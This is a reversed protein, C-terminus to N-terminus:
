NGFTEYSVIDELAKRNKDKPEDAPHGLPLVTFVKYQQPVELIEKAEDQNFYGIWCTGLDREAAELIMQTVAISLDVAYAPIECTMVRDPETAVPVIIVPAEGVFEQGGCIEALKERRNADRIVIFHWPQRNSASPALRGAQLVAEVDESSVPEDSFSRVSRRKRMLESFCKM